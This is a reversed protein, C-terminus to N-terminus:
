KDKTRINNYPIAPSTLSDYIKNAKQGYHEDYEIREVM